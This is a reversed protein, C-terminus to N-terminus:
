KGKTPKWGHDVARMLRMQAKAKAATTHKAHVKGTQRNVVQYANGSKKMAYPM